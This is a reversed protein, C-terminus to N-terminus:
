LDSRTRAIRQLIQQNMAYRGSDITHNNMDPVDPLFNGNRDQTYEYKSFERAINPTRAPDIVIAALDQFWKIGAKVSGPGKKVAVANVGRRRLESITRADESDAWVIESGAVAKVREALTDIGTLSAYFEKVAYLTRTGPSYGWRTLADPDNAFGFDLGNYFKDLVNIDEATVARLQLNDFVQGGTGTVEGMYENRWARENTQSLAEARAIFDAGLWEPPLDMYTSTHVLRGDVPKLAADNVWAQASRPPNYSYLIAAREVGRFVSQAITRIDEMGRFEALEEIWLYRFYGKELKISKSKMPDDAGRFLIRQGTPRYIIELPSKRFSFYASLGLEDIAWVLQAYVSDKMTNGVRRYVIANAQADALLGAIIAVSIFSSKGSGRGGKLWYENHGATLFDDMVDWFAPAVKNYVSICNM